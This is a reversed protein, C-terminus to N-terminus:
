GLFVMGIEKKSKRDPKKHELIRNLYGELFKLFALKCLQHVTQEHKHIDRIEYNGGPLSLFRM